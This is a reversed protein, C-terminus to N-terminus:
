HDVAIVKRKINDDAKPMEFDFSLILNEEEDEDEKRPQTPPSEDRDENDVIDMLVDCDGTGCPAIQGLMVNSSVGAVKDCEAFVGAKVLVVNVEEFSCKALPGIDIIRNMGHRDISMMSGRACMTDVLLSLHRFSIFTGSDKLVDTLENLLAQRAAEIGFIRYIETIDNSVTRCEDVWSLGLIASLNTGDTQLSYEGCKVFTGAEPMYRLTDNRPRLEASTVNAFGRIAVDNLICAELAKLETLTDEEENNYVDEDEEEDVEEEEDFMTTTATSMADDDEQQQQQQPAQQKSSPTTEKSLLRIRFILDSANDDSFVCHVCNTGHFHTDLAIKLDLMTLDLEAMKQRDIEFRLLWPTSEMAPSSTSSTTTELTYKNFAEVLRIDQAITTKLDNPEFYIKSQKVVDRFTTWTIRNKLEIAKEKTERCGDVLFLTMSPSKMSKTVRTLEEIRPVGRTAKTAALSGSVHFSNLTLQSLPEGISQAAIVGVMESASSIAEHYKCRVLDVVKLFANHDLGYRLILPKPSLCMRLLIKLLVNGPHCTTVFLEKELQKITSLVFLPDLDSVVGSVGYQKMASQINTLIRSFGVPSFTVTEKQGGCMVMIYFERDKLLQRYHAICSEQWDPTGHFKKWTTEDLANQLDHPSAILYESELQNMDKDVYYMPQSELKTSDIGDEGYIYQVISGNATRVSGDYSCKLDEMAKVLKRQIYGTTSTRVATDILGERGGMSHFFFEQPNLGGIFSSSVFGRPEPGDSYRTYHPLTRHDLGYSIRKGGVNQQGVCAIMQSVNLTSGKSGSKIMNIMRNSADDIQELGIKGAKDVASNLIRMVEQEFKQSTSLRSENVFKGIHVDKIMDNVKVKMDNITAHMQTLTDKNAVLDSIGVSFGDLILWDCMLQQTNDLFRRTEEGGLDNYIAHVLGRSREQYVKKDVRGQKIQGREIRVYNETDGDKNDDFSKNEGFYNISSPIITSLIQRGTWTGNSNGSKEIESASIRLNPSLLNFVQKTDVYTGSKSLRYIGLAIDQVVGVIPKSDKPSVIQTPVSALQALEMHTQLSQPVHLNMEDGDYDANYGSTVCVNLRFTDGQAMVRVRHAMMSMRHLSPQRNFLVYDGNTLHRDVIDGEVLSVTSRDMGKLRITHHIPLQKRVFKAGPWVDPGRQVLEHLRQHNQKNVVEPFTLNMAIRLPVGVEDISINPDPTIVTRASFDVRKGMLNGRIRGDKAKLREFLSRLPRGTRQVSPSLGSINNDVLTAVHYQLLHVHNEIQENNAGKVLKSKLAENVKIIDSLKFTLDDEMRQGTDNRVSPRVSPPPVPLATCIMWEPRSMKSSMGMIEIDDDSIRSFIRHVDEASLVKKTTTNDADMKKWELVIRLISDKTYKDPRRAGCHGCAKRKYTTCSKYLADFRRSRNLKRGLIISADPSDELLMLHSCRHCFCRLIRRVYDIFQAYFVPKALCIHGFHGPCLAAKQDCTVCRGANDTVGMRPDLLGNPVPDSGNYTENTQIEVVSRSIIEDPSLIGFQVGTVKEIDVDYNLERQLAM